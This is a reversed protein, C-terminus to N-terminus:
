MNAMHLALAKRAVVGQARAQFYKQPLHSRTLIWRKHFINSHMGRVKKLEMKLYFKETTKM